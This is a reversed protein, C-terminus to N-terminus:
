APTFLSHLHQRMFVYLRLHPYEVVQADDLFALPVIGQGLLCVTLCQSDVRFAEERVVIHAHQLGGQLLM